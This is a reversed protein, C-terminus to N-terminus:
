LTNRMAQLWMATSAMSFQAAEERLGYKTGYVYLSGEKLLLYRLRMNVDNAGQCKRGPVPVSGNNHECGTRPGAIVNRRPVTLLM